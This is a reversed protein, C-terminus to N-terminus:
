SFVKIVELLGCYVSVGMREEDECDQRLIELEDNKYVAMYTQLRVVELSQVQLPSERKGLDRKCSRQPASSCTFRALYLM